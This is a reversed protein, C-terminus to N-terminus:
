EAIEQPGKGDRTLRRSAWRVLRTLNKLTQRKSTGRQNKRIQRWRGVQHLVAQRILSRAPSFLIDRVYTQM